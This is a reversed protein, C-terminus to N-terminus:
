TQEVGQSKTKQEIKVPFLHNRRRVSQQSGHRRRVHHCHGGVDGEDDVKVNGAFNFWPRIVAFRPDCIQYELTLKYSITDDM